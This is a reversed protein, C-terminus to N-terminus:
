MGHDTTSWLFWVALSLYKMGSQRNYSRLVRGSTSFSAFDRRATFEM